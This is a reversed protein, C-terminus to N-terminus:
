FAEHPIRRWQGGGNTQSTQTCIYFYNEDYAYQGAVGAAVSNAPPEVASGPAQISAYWNNLWLNDSQSSRAPPHAVPIKKAM